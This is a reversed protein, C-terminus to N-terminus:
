NKKVQKYLFHLRAINTLFYCYVHVNIEFYFVGIRSSHVEFTNIVRM